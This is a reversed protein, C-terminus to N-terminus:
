ELGDCVGGYSEVCRRVADFDRSALGWLLHPAYEPRTSGIEAVRRLLENPEKYPLPPVHATLFLEIDSENAPCGVVRYRNLYGSGDIYGAVVHPVNRWDMISFAKIYRPGHSLFLAVNEALSYSGSVVQLPRGRSPEPYVFIVPAEEYVLGFDVTLRKMEIVWFMVVVVCSEGICVGM